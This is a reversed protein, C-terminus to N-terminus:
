GDRDKRSTVQPVVLTRKRYEVAALGYQKMKRYLTARGMGLTAAAKKVNGRCDDLAHMIRELEGGSLPRDLLLELLSSDPRRTRNEGSASLTASRAGRPTAPERIREPLHRVVIEGCGANVSAFQLTNRLERVNGPWSYRTLARQARSSIRLPEVGEHEAIRKLFHAALDPIDETRERLPPIVIPYVVLRYFLDERFRGDRVEDSLNRHTASIIRVDLSVVKKGGLRVIERTELVRLLRVQSALSLEAVEDLFVIGGKAREFVGRHTSSAGTFAGREHGFLQSDQLSDPVAGCNLAEFPGGSRRSMRHIRRAVLEKGTGSEGTIVVSVESEAVRRIQRVLDRMVESGGIIRGFPGETEPLRPPGCPDSTFPSSRHLVAQVVGALTGPKVPKVLYERAGIRLASVATSASDVTSVVVVPLGSFLTVIRELVALGDMGPMILDLVLCAPLREDLAAFLLEDNSICEVRIGRGELAERYIRRTDSDDDAIFVLRNVSEIWLREDPWTGPEGDSLFTWVAHSLPCM